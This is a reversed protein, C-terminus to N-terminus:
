AERKSAYLIAVGLIAVLASIIMPTLTIFDPIMSMLIASIFTVFGAVAMSAAFDGRGTLRQQSFYSGLLIVLYFAM